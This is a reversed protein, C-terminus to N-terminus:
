CDFMLIDELTKMYSADLVIIAANLSQLYGINRIVLSTMKGKVIPRLREQGSFDCFVYRHRINDRIRSQIEYDM